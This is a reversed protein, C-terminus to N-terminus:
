KSKEREYIALLKKALTTMDFNRLVAERGRKGLEVRKESNGLISKLATILTEVDNTEYLVGGNTSEILEVSVGNRPQVVPVGMAMAELLYLGFAEGQREPVSMISLSRLFRIRDEREFSEWFQVDNIVGAAALRDKVKKIYDVDDALRGGAIHLRLNRYDEEQKLKIFAEALVDLGKEECMRSLFGITAVEPPTEAPEYREVEVGGPVVQVKDDALNLRRRMVAAYYDSVAVLTDVDALRERLIRWAELSYARGLGDLFGDEDQLLCVVPVGLREKIRRTLGVLLANSLCVVDPKAESKLWDVLRDLEKVQRGEEGRLMSITTEGLDKANTMGARKAAMRLLGRSDFLKDVWRPTKCFLGLKQQLYVNIGGFFIPTPNDKSTDELKAPLYLPVLIADHGLKRLARVILNDRLCNECYFNDGSGPTIQIIRM